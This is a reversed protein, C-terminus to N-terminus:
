GDGEYEYVVAMYIARALDWKPQGYHALLDIGPWTEPPKWPDYCYLDPGSPSEVFDQAELWHYTSGTPSWANFKVCIAAKHNEREVLQRLVDIEAPKSAWDYVVKMHWGFAGLCDLILKATPIGKEVTYFGGRTLFRNLDAPDVAIIHSKVCLLCGVQGITYRSYGMRLGSYRPNRQSYM